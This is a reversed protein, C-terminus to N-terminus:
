LERASHKGREQPLPGWRRVSYRQSGIARCSRSWARGMLRGATSFARGNSNLTSPHLLSSYPSLSNHGDVLRLFHITTGVVYVLWGRKPGRAQRQRVTAM